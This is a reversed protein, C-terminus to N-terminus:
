LVPGIAFLGVFFLLVTTAFLVNIVYGGLIGTTLAAGTPAPASPAFSTETM